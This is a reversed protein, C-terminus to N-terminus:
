DILDGDRSMTATEMALIEAAIARTVNRQRSLSFQDCAEVIRRAAEFSREIRLTLFNVVNPEVNLQRDSFLKVMVAKLLETDPPKIYVVPLAILRSRLDPLNINLDGPALRSTVLMAYGKERLLNIIHFFVREDSIGKDINEIAIAGNRRLSTLVDENISTGMITDAGSKLRWVHTLHSKGSGSPGIVISGKATWQPWSDILNVAAENSSSVLFDESGLAERHPLNLILQDFKSNAVLACM